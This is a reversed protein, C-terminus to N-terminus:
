EQTDPPEDAPIEKTKKPRRAIVVLAGAGALLLVAAGIALYQRTKGSTSSPNIPVTEEFPENTLESAPQTNNQGTDWSGGEQPGTSPANDGSVTGPVEAVPGAYASTGTYAPATTHTTGTTNKNTADPKTSTTTPKTTTTSPKTTTTTPKTTTTPPRTTNTAPKTTTTVATTAAPEIPWTLFNSPEGTGDLIQLGLIERGSEPLGFKYGIRIEATVDNNTGYVFIGDVAYEANNYDSSGDARLVITRGSRIQLNVGTMASENFPTGTKQSVQFGLCLANEKEVRLIRLGAYHLRNNCASGVPILIHFSSGRWESDWIKGDLTVAGATVSLLFVATFVVVAIRLAKKPSSM